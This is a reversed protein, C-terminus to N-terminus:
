CLFVVFLLMLGCEGSSAPRHHNIFLSPINGLSLVPFAPVNKLVLIGAWRRFGPVAEM